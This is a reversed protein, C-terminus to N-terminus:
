KIKKLLKILEKFEKENVDGVRLTIPYLPKEGKELLKILQSLKLKVKM